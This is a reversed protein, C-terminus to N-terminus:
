NPNLLMSFDLIHAFYDSDVLTDTAGNVHILVPRISLKKPLQLRQIKEEVEQIVSSGIAEQLFKIECLYLTGFRTQILYDIQCGAHSKTRKQFYPNDFVIENPDIKLLEWVTRRQGLVLNEFQLGQISAWSPLKTLTGSEIRERNPAIFKLYFRTYNDSLRYQSLKSRKGDKLQWTYDRSIFGATILDSLYHSFVGAKKVGLAQCIETLSRPGQILQSVIAQYSASRRSFLDAFTNDFERFLLGEPQFCLQRINEEASQKPNIEELYRPIGGTISLIKFKEYASVKDRYRGWFESCDSLPLPKLVLDLSIRGLFGTSALINKEIWSSISGSLILFLRNNKKFHLDWATKLKGLFTPDKNGMWTIEDFVLLIPEKEVFKFLTRFLSGWDESNPRAVQLSDALQQAFDQRQMAATVGEQPALGSFILTKPFKKGFHEALRSKGIRRRGRIVVLHAIKKELLQNLIGLERERGIFKVSSGKM